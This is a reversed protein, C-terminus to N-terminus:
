GPWGMVVEDVSRRASPLPSVTPKGLRFAFTPFWTNDGTITALHGAMQPPSELQRERDVVEPMENHPQMALGQTTGWLHIRQWLRGARLAQPRDYLSRVAIMGVASATEM